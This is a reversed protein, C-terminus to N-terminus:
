LFRIPGPPERWTSRAERASLWRTRAIMRRGEWSHASSSRSGAPRSRPPLRTARAVMLPGRHSLVGTGLTLVFAHEGSFPTPAGPFDSSLTGGAVYANGVADIAIANGYDIDKGGFYTSYILDTGAPNIKAAFGEYSGGKSASQYPNKTPVFSSLLLSGTIFANGSADVALGSITVNQGSGFYTSYVLVPDVVLPRAADYRGLRLGLRGGSLLRYGGAIALRKGDIMQYIHPAQQRIAGQGTALLVDGHRDLRTSLAGEAKMMIRNPDAHPGVIWDYELRGGGGGSFALDIGPYVHRYVVRAFTPIDTHWRSRDKGILYNVIGPRRGSAIIRPHRAGDVPFLRITIPPRQAVRPASIRHPLVRQPALVDRRTDSSPSALSFVAGADTLFLTYGPGHALYRVHPDAQGVNPEFSLPLAGYHPASALAAGGFFGHVPEAAGSRVAGVPILLCLTLVPILPRLFRSSSITREERVVSRHFRRM